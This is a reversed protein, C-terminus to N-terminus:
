RIIMFFRDWRTKTPFTIIKVILDKIFYIPGTNLYAGPADPYSWWVIFARGRIYERPVFGWFRSDESNDRNDGMAFYYGKPVTVPGFNDRIGNFDGKKYITFPDKHIKYPENIKEGNIYVQKDIVEITDGPMGIVRKIYDVSTQKPYRFVIVDGRKVDRVPFIKKEWDFSTGGFMFKNVALHDGILLSDEMSSTPIKFQQFVFTKAFTVALLGILITEFYDRFTSKRFDKM